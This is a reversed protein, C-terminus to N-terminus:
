PRGAPANAKVALHTKPFTPNVDYSGPTRPTELGLNWYSAGASGLNRNLAYIADFSAARVDDGVSDPFGFEETIWPRGMQHCWASVPGPVVFISRDGYLVITCVDGGPLATIARWDIGSDWDIQALGGSATLHYPDLSKWEAFTRRYFDVQEQTSVHLTNASSNIAVPEGAFTVLAITPDDAYRVRTVTNTRTAVFKLFPAWDVTYPNIHLWQLFDRYDSLDLIAKLGAASIAAIDRDVRTWYSPDFFTSPDPIFTSPPVPRPDDYNILRLTNLGEARALRIRTEIDDYGNYVSAGHLTWPRGALCLHVGDASVFPDARQYYSTCPATPPERAPVRGSLPWVLAAAILTLSAAGALVARAVLRPRGGRDRAM